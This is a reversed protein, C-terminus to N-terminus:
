IKFIKIGSPVNLIQTRYHPYLRFDLGVFKGNIRGAQLVIDYIRYFMIKDTNLTFVNERYTIKYKLHNM